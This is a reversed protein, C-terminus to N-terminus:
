VDIHASVAAAANPIPVPGKASVKKKKKPVAVSKKSAIAVPLMAIASMESDRTTTTTPGMVMRDLEAELDMSSEEAIDGGGGVQMQTHIGDSELSAESLIEDSKALQSILAASAKNDEGAGSERLHEGAATVGIAVRMSIIGNSLVSIRRSIGEAKKSISISTQRLERLSRLKPRVLNKTDDADAHSRHAAKLDADIQRKTTAMSATNQALEEDLYECLKRLELISKENAAIRKPLDGMDEKEDADENEESDGHLCTAFRAGM